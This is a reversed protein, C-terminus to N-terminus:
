VVSGLLLYESGGLFYALNPIQGKPISQFVEFDFSTTSVRRGGALVWGGQPPQQQPSTQGVIRPPPVMIPSLSPHSPHSFPGQSAPTVTGTADILGKLRMHSSGSSFTVQGASNFIALGYGSGVTAPPALVCVWYSLSSPGNNIDVVTYINNNVGANVLVANGVPWAVFVMPDVTLGSPIPILYENGSKSVTGNSVIRLPFHTDDFIVENNQNTIASIGYSM